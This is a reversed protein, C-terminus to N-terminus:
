AASITCSCIETRGQYTQQAKDGAEVERQCSAQRLVVLGIANSQGAAEGGANLSNISSSTPNSM